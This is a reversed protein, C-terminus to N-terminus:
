YGIAVWNIDIYGTGNHAALFSGTGTSSISVQAATEGTEGSHATAVVSAATMPFASPYLIETGTPEVTGRGWQIITGNPLRQRGWLSNNVGPFAGLLNYPTLAKTNDTGELTEAQTAIQILGARGTTATRSNLAAPTIVRQEDTGAITEAATALEVVGARAATAPALTFNTDGITISSPNINTLIIDIALAIESQAVKQVIPTTQSVVAFLVGSDTYVGVEYVAYSDTSADNALVHLMNSEVIVGGSVTNVRKIEDVLETQGATPSYQGRGFGVQSLLVPATGTQEANTVEALGANTIIVQIESM